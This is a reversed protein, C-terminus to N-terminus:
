ALRKDPEGSGTRPATLRWLRGGAPVTEHGAQLPRGPATPANGGGLGKTICGGIALEVLGVIRDYAQLAIRELRSVGAKIWEDRRERM